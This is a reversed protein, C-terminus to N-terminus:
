PYLPGRQGSSVTKVRARVTKGGAVIEELMTGSGGSPARYQHGM